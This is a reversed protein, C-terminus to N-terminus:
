AGLTNMRIFELILNVMLPPLLRESRGGPVIMDVKVAALREDAIVAQPFKEGKLYHNLPHCYIAAPGLSRLAKVRMGWSAIMLHLQTVMFYRMPLM